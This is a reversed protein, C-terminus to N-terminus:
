FFKKETGGNRKELEERKRKQIEEACGTSDRRKMKGEDIEMEGRMKKIMYEVNGISDRREKGKKGEFLKEIGKREKKQMKDLCKDAEESL